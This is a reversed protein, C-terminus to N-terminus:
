DEDPKDLHKANNTPRLFMLDEKQPSFKMQQVKIAFSTVRGLQSLVVASFTMESSLRNLQVSLNVLATIALNSDMLSNPVIERQQVNDFIIFEGVQLM